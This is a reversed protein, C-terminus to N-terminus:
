NLRFRDRESTYYYNDVNIYSVKPNDRNVLIEVKDGRKINKLIELSDSVLFYQERVIFNSDGNEEILLYSFKLATYNTKYIPIYHNKIVNTITAKEISYDSVSDLIPRQYILFSNNPALSDFVILYKDYDKVLGLLGGNTSWYYEKGKYTYTFLNHPGGYQSSCVAVSYKKNQLKDLNSCSQILISQLLIYVPISVRIPFKFNVIRKSLNNQKLIM